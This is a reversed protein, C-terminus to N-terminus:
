FIVQNFTSLNMTQITNLKTLVCSMIACISSYINSSKIPRVFCLFSRCFVMFEVETESSNLSFAVNCITANEYVCIKLEAAVDLHNTFM